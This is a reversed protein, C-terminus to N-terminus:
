VEQLLLNKPQPIKSKPNQIKSKPNFDKASRRGGVAKKLCNTDCPNTEREFGTRTAKMKM